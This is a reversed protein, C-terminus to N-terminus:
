DHNIIMKYGREFGKHRDGYIEEMVKMFKDDKSLIKCYYSFVKRTEPAPSAIIYIFEYILQELRKKGDNVIDKMSEESPIGKSVVM